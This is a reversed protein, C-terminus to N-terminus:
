TEPAFERKGEKKQDLWVTRGMIQYKPTLDQGNILHPLFMTKASYKFDM